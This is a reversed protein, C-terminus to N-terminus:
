LVSWYSTVKQLANEVSKRNSWGSGSESDHERCTQLSLEFDHKSSTRSVSQLLRPSYLTSEHIYHQQRATM